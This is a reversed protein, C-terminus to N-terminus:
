CWTCCLWWHNRRYVRTITSEKAEAGPRGQNLSTDVGLASDELGKMEATLKGLPSAASGSFSFKVGKAPTEPKEDEPEPEQVWPELTIFDTIVADTIVGYNVRLRLYGFTAYTIVSKKQIEVVAATLFQASLKSITKHLIIKYWSRM